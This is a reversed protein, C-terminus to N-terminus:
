LVDTACATAWFNVRVMGELPEDNWDDAISVPHIERLDLLLDVRQGLLCVVARYRDVLHGPAGEGDGVAADVAAKEARGDDVRRLYGRGWSNSDWSNVESM